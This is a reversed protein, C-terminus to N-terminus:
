SLTKCFTVTPMSFFLLHRVISQHKDQLFPQMGPEYVFAFIIPCICQGYALCSVTLQLFPSSDKFVEMGASWLLM